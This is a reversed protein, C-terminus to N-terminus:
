TKEARAEIHDWLTKEEAPIPPLARVQRNLRDVALQLGNNARRQKEVQGYAPAMVFWYFVVTVVIVVALIKILTSSTINM